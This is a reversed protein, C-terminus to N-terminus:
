GNRDARAAGHKRQRLKGRLDLLPRNGVAIFFVSKFHVLVYCIM